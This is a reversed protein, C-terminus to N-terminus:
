AFADDENWGIRKRIIQEGDDFFCRSSVLSPKEAFRIAVESSNM